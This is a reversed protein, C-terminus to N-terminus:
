WTAKHHEWVPGEGLRLGNLYWESYPNYRFYTEFGEKRIVEHFDGKETPAYAPITSLSWHLFIGFKAEDFWAPVSHQRLSAPDPTYPM